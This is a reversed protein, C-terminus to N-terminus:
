AGDAVPKGGHLAIAELDTEGACAPACTFGM